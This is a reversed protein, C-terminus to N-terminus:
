FIGSSSPTPANGPIAGMLGTGASYGTMGLVVMDFVFGAFMGVMSYRLIQSRIFRPRRFNILYVLSVGILGMLFGASFWITRSFGPIVEGNGEGNDPVIMFPIKGNQGNQGAPDAPQQGDNDRPAKSAQVTQPAQPSAETQNAPQSLYGSPPVPAQSQISVHRNEEYTADSDPSEAYPNRGDAYPNEAPVAMSRSDIDQKSTRFPLM